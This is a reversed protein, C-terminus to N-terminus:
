QSVERLWLGVDVPALTGEVVSVLDGVVQEPDVEDRLQRAFSEVAREADYQERNFRRDVVRRAWRLVPRFLGAAALTAAAVALDSSDPLLRGLGIVIVAYVILLVGTVLAYATTRTIVRDVDYLHFRSIALGAAVPILAMSVARLLAPLVPWSEVFGALVWGTVMAPVALAMWKLQQREVGRSRRFRVVFSVLATIAALLLYILIPVEDDSSVFSVADLGIPNHVILGHAGAQVSTALAVRGFALVLGVVVLVFAPRWRPSPLRGAPFLMVAVCLLGLGPIWYSDSYLSALPLLPHTTDTVSEAWDYIVEGCLWLLGIASFLWGIPNSPRTAVIFAGVVIWPIMSLSIGASSFVTAATFAGVVLLAAGTSVIALGCIRAVWSKTM